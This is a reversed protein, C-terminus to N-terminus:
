KEGLLKVLQELQKKLLESTFQVKAFYNERDVNLGERALAMIQATHDPSFIYAKFRPHFTSVELGEIQKSEDRLNNEAALLSRTNREIQETNESIDRILKFAQNIQEPTM